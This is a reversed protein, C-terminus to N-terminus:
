EMDFLNMQEYKEQEKDFDTDFLSMEGKQNIGNLRDVAIKWYEKNLEFGIYNRGLEKCAMATTGSGMFPDLVIDNENTSNIIHNRVFRIDKITPHKYLEKDYKNIESVFYKAKTEYTGGIKTGKERFMLCYETDCLYTGNCTPIPNTKHWTLIEHFCHKETIFYEM